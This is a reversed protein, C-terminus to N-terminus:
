APLGNRIVGIVDDIDLPPLNALSITYRVAIVGSPRRFDAPLRPFAEDVDYVAADRLNFRLLEGSRRMEDDWDLRSLKLLFNDVAASDTRITDIIGDILAAVTLHGGQTEELQVSALLLRDGDATWL